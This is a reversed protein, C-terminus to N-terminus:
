RSSHRKSLAKNLSCVSAGREQDPAQQVGDTTAADRLCFCKQAVMFESAAILVFALPEPLACALAIVALDQWAVVEHDPRPRVEVTPLDASLSASRSM